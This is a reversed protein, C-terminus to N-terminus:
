ICMSKIKDLWSSTGEEQNQAAQRFKETAIDTMEYFGFKGELKKQGYLDGRCAQYICTIFDLSEGALGWYLYYRSDSKTWGM